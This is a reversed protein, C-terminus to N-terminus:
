NKVFEVFRWSYKWNKWYEEYTWGDDFGTFRERVKQERIKVIKFWKNCWHFDGNFGEKIIFGFLSLYKRTRFKDFKELQHTKTDIVMVAKRM